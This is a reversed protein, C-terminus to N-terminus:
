KYLEYYKQGIACLYHINKISDYHFFYYFDKIKITDKLMTKSLTIWNQSSIESQFFVRKLSLVPCIEGSDLLPVSSQRLIIKKLM